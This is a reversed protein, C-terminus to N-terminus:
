SCPQDPLLQTTLLDDTDIIDLLVELYLM